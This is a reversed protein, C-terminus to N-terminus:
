WAASLPPKMPGPDMKMARIVTNKRKQMLLSPMRCLPKRMQWTKFATEYSGLGDLASWNQNQRDTLYAQVEQELTRNQTM